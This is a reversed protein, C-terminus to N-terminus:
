SKVLWATLRPQTGLTPQTTNQKKRKGHATSQKKKAAVPYRERQFVLSSVPSRPLPPYPGKPGHRRLLEMNLAIMASALSNALFLDPFARWSRFAAFRGLRVASFCHEVRSRVHSLKANFLLREERSATDQLAPGPYPIIVNDSASFGGDALCVVDERSLFSCVAACDGIVSDNSRGTYINDPFSIFFGTTTILALLKVVHNSYKPQFLQESQDLNVTYIPCTDMLVKVRSDFYPVATNQVSHLLAAPGDIVDRLAASVREAAAKVRTRTNRISWGRGYKMEMRNTTVAMKGCYLFHFLGEVHQYPLGTLGAIDSIIEPLVGAPHLESERGMNVRFFVGYFQSVKDTKDFNTM